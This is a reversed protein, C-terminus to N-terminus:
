KSAESGKAYVNGRWRGRYVQRSPDIAEPDIELVSFARPGIASRPFKIGFDMLRAGEPGATLAHVNARTRTLTSCLGPRLLLDQVELIQFDRGLELPDPAGPEPEFNRVRAEGELCLTVFAYDVHNHAQLVAGPQLVVEIMQFVDDRGAPGTKMGQGEYVTLRRGPYFAPEHRVLEACLALLFADEAPHEEVVLARARPIWREYFAELDASVPETVGYRPAPAEEQLARGLVPLAFLARLAGRRTPGGPGSRHRPHPDPPTM